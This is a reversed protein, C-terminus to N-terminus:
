LMLPANPIRIPQAYRDKSLWAHAAEWILACGQGQRYRLPLYRESLEQVASWTGGSKTLSYSCLQELYWNRLYTERSAFGGVVTAWLLLDPQTEGIGIKDCEDLALMLAKSTAEHMPWQSSSPEICEAMYTIVALRCLKHLSDSNVPLSLADHQLFRRTAIVFLFDMGSQPGMKMMMDFSELLSCIRTTLKFLEEADKVELLCKFGNKRSAFQKKKESSWNARLTQIMSITTKELPFNPKRLTNLSDQTDIVLIMERLEPISISQLGGKQTTLRLVANIHTQEWTQSSYFDNDRHGVDGMQPRQQPPYASTHVGLIAMSLLMADTVSGGNSALGERLYVVAQQHSNLRLFETSSNGSGFFLQYCCAAYTIAELLYPTEMALHTTTSKWREIIRPHSSSAFAPWQNKIASQFLALAESPFGRICLVDFPDLRGSAPEVIPFDNESGTSESNESDPPTNNPEPPNLVPKSLLITSSIRPESAGDRKKRRQHHVIAAHRHRRFVQDKKDGKGAPTWILFTSPRPTANKTDVM